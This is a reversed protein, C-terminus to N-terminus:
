DRTGYTITNCKLTAEAKVQKKHDISGEELRRNIEEIIERIGWCNKNPM